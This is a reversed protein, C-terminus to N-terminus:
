PSDLHQDSSAPNASKLGDTFVPLKTISSIDAALQLAQKESDPFAMEVVANKGTLTILFGNWHWLHSRRSERAVSIYLFDGFVFEHTKRALLITRRWKTVTKRKPDVLIGDEGVWCGIGQRILFLGLLIFSSLIIWSVAMKVPSDPPRPRVLLPGYVFAIGGCVPIFAGLTDVLTDVLTRPIFFVGKRAKMLRPTAAAGGADSMGIGAFKTNENKMCRTPSAAGVARPWGGRWGNRAEDGNGPAVASPPQNAGPRIRQGAALRTGIVPVKHKCIEDEFLSVIWVPLDKPCNQLVKSNTHCIQLINGGDM